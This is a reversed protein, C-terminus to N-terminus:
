RQKRWGEWDFDFELERVALVVALKMEMVALEEGICRTHGLEFVRWANKIPHLPHDEAVVFRAPLFQTARPWLDYRLHAVTPNTQILAGDTPYSVGEHAFHFTPTAQATTDNGAAIFLRLQSEVIDIFERSPEQHGQKSSENGFESVTLSTAIKHNSSSTEM